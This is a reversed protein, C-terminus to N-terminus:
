RGDVNSCVRRGHIRRRWLGPRDALDHCSALESTEIPNVEGYGVGFITIVVMYFADMWSWGASAYAFTGFLCTLLFFTIGGIVRKLATSM